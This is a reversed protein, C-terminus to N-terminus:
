SRPLRVNCSIASRFLRITVGIQDCLWFMNEANITNSQPFMVFSNMM